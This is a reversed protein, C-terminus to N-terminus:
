RCPKMTVGILVCNYRSTLFFSRAKTVLRREGHVPGCKGSELEKIWADSINQVENESKNGAGDGRSM